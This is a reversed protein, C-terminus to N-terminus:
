FLMGSKGYNGGRCMEFEIERGSVVSETGSVLPVKTIAAWGRVKSM